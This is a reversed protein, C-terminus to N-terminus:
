ISAVVSIEYLTYQTVLMNQLRSQLNCYKNSYAVAKYPKYSCWRKTKVNKIQQLMFSARHSVACLAHKRWQAERDARM